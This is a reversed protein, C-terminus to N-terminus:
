KSDQLQKRIDNLVEVISECNVDISYALTHIANVIEETMKELSMLIPRLGTAPILAPSTSAVQKKTSKGVRENLMCSSDGEPELQDMHPPVVPM